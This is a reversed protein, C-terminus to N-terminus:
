RTVEQGAGDIVTVDCRQTALQVGDWVALAKPRSVPWALRVVIRGAEFGVTYPSHTDGLGTIVGCDAFNLLPQDHTMPE